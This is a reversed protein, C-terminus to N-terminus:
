WLEPIVAAVSKELLPWALFIKEAFHRCGETKVVAM